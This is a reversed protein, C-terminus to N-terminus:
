VRYVFFSSVVVLLLCAVHRVGQLCVLIFFCGVTSMGCTECGTSSYPHFLWWCYVHWMDLERYLFLSSVVVLLLCAVHRVGQLCVLIFCGGVTSMGCKECGTSSYPHFLWWCYVHWMDLERYVFLSSVVVLLLCAVHRVGQLCVLIFSIRLGTDIEEVLECFLLMCRFYISIFCVDM